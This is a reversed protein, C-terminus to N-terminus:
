TSAAARATWSTAWCRIPRAPRPASAAICAPGCSRTRGRPAPIACATRPHFSTQMEPWRRRPQSHRASRLPRAARRDAGGRGAPEPHLVACGPWRRARPRAGAHCPRRLRGAPRASRHGRAAAGLDARRGLRAASAEAVAAGGAGARGSPTVSLRWVDGPRDHFPAVDRLAPGYRRAMREGRRGRRVAGARGGAARGSLRGVARLGRDPAARRAAPWWAAGTVDFPSGLAAAMAAVARAADMSRWAGADGGGRARPLVKLAVETLVGLTGRSGALLKVLDYGTVNKMVRGGNKVVTGAGDVFRVGLLFDRAAGSRCGGRGRPM